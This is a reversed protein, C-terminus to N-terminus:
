AKRPRRVAVFGIAMLGGLLAFAQPEPVASLTGSLEVNDVRHITDNINLNDSFYIRFEINTTINQFDGNLDAHTLDLSLANPYTPDSSIAFNQITTYGNQDSTSFFTAHNDISTTVYSRLSLSSAAKSSYGYDYSFTTLDM